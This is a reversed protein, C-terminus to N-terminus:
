GKVWNHITSLSSLRRKITQYAPGLEVPKFRRGTNVPPLTAPSELIRFDRCQEDLAMRVDLEGGRIAFKCQIYTLRETAGIGLSVYRIVLRRRCFGFRFGPLRQRKFCTHSTLPRHM